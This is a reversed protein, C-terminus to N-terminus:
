RRSPLDPRRPDHGRPIRDRDAAPGQGLACYDTADQYSLHSVPLKQDARAVPEGTGTPNRFTKEAGQKEATTM